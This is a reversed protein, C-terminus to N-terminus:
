QTGGKPPDFQFPDNKSPGKGSARRINKVIEAVALRQEEDLEAIMSILTEGVMEREAKTVLLKPLKGAMIYDPNGGLDRIKLLTLSAPAGTGTELQYLSPARIGILRAFKAGGRVDKGYGLLDRVEAM